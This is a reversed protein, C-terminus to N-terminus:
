LGMSENIEQQYTNTKDEMVEDVTVVRGAQGSELIGYSVAVSRTGMEANVEPQRGEDIARAFDAYEIAIIKRDTEPFPFNYQWMRQGGFLATTAKDLCFDPVLELLAEGEYQENDLTILIERGSRDGPLDM